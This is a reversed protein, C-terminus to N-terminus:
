QEEPFLLEQLTDRFGREILYRITPKVQSDLWKLKREIDTPLTREIPLVVGGMGGIEGMGVGRKSLWDSVVELAYEEQSIPSISINRALGTALGNRFVVEYRWCRTYNTDESQVEKNYIRARQESSTSGIYCTDGGDSGVIIWVKRKRGKPLADNARISDRYAKKGINKDMVDYQATLQVDIRSIHANGRYLIPLAWNAKEGTIQAYGSTDNQGFFCNGASIGSYGLLSRAELQYGERAVREVCRTAATAWEQYGDDDGKMSMSLWDIGATVKEIM